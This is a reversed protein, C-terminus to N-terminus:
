NRPSVTWYLKTFSPPTETQDTDNDLLSISDDHGVFESATALPLPIQAAPPAPNCSKPKRSMHQELLAGRFSERPRQVADGRVLVISVASADDILRRTLEGRPSM